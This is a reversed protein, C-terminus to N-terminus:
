RLITVPSWASRMGPNGRYRSLDVDGISPPLRYDAKALHFGQRGQERAASNYKARLEPQDNWVEKAYAVAKVFGEQNVIEGLKKATKRVPRHRVAVTGNKLQVFVLDGITGSVKGVAPNSTLNAM